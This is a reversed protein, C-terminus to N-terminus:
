RAVAARPSPAELGLAPPPLPPADGNSRPRQPRAAPAGADGVLPARGRVGLPPYAGGAV